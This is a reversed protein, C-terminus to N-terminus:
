RVKDNDLVGVLGSLLASITAPLSNNVFKAGDFVCVEENTCDFVTFNKAFRPIDKHIPLKTIPRSITQVIEGFVTAQLNSPLTKAEPPSAVANKDAKVKKKM